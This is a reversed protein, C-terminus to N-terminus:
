EPLWKVARRITDDLGLTDSIWLLGALWGRLGAGSVAFSRRQLGQAMQLAPLGGFM